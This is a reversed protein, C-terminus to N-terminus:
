FGKAIRKILKYGVLFAIATAAVTLGVTIANGVQASAATALGDFDTVALAPVSAVAAGVAAGYRLVRNRLKM